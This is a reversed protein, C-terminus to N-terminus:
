IAASIPYKESQIRWPRRGSGSPRSPSISRHIMSAILDDAWFPTATCSCGIGSFGLGSLLWCIALGGFFSGSNTFAAGGSAPYPIMDAPRDILSNLVDSIVDNKPVVWACRARDVMGARRW